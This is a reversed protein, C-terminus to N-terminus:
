ACAMACNDTAVDICTFDWSTSCCYSDLACTCAEISAVSCGPGFHTVCCDGGNKPNLPWMCLPQVGAVGPDDYCEM